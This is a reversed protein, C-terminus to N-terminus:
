QASMAARQVANAPVCYHTYCCSLNPDLGTESELVIVKRKVLITVQESTLNIGSRKGGINVEVKPFEEKPEPDKSAPNYELLTVVAGAPLTPLGAFDNKDSLKNVDVPPLEPFQANMFEGAARETEFGENTSLSLLWRDLGSPKPRNRYVMGHFLGTEEHQGVTIYATAQQAQTSM